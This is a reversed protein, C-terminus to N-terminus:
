EEGKNLEECRLGVEKMMNKDGEPSKLAEAVSAIIFNCCWPATCKISCIKSLQMPFM